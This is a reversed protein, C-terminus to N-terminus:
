ESAGNEKAKNFRDKSVGENAASRLDENTYALRKLKEAGAHAAMLADKLVLEDQAQAISAALIGEMARRWEDLRRGVPTKMLRSMTLELYAGAAEWTDPEREDVKELLERIRSGLRQQIQEKEAVKDVRGFGAAIGDLIKEM